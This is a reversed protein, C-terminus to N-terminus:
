DQWDRIIAAMLAAKRPLSSILIHEHLAHLGGGEAGLGDLTPIGLAATFNGDSGGGAGDERITMGINKAIGQAQIFAKGDGREMPPRHHNRLMDVKAGPMFPMRDMIARHVKEYAPVSLARVDLRATVQDPIVNSANGGNVVTVSVSTGYKLDNLKNLDLAQQAFEIIANIGMEPENGAHASKGTITMTYSATGKRWTKLSGDGTPPETVLVLASQQALEEILDKSHKSGIEEDSTALYWIPRNPLEGRAILAEIAFISIVIGGKMDVAGPGYLRGDDEIRIPRAAVAGVDWVTDMHSVILIPKGTADANWKGLVIDGVAERAIVEVSAGHETFLEAIRQSMNDVAAKNRSPSEIEILDRLLDIMASEKDDFYTKIESM